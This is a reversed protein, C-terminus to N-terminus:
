SKLRKLLYSTCINDENLSVIKDPLNLVQIAQELFLVRFEAHGKVLFAMFRACLDIM